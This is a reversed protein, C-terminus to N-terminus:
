EEKEVHLWPRHDIVNGFECELTLSDHAPFPQNLITEISFSTPISEEILHEAHEEEVIPLSPGEYIPRRSEM